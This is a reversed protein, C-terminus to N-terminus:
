ADVRWGAAYVEEPTDYMERPLALIDELKRPMLFINANFVTSSYGTLHFAAFLDCLVGLEEDKGPLRRVLPLFPRLQWLSPTTLILVNRRRESDTSTATSM